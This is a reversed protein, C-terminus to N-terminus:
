GPAILGAMTAVIKRPEAPKSVVLCDPWEARVARTDLQGTYFFFPVGRQALARAVPVSVERELQLDLMAADIDQEALARLAETVNRCTWVAEAGADLLVSELEMLILFSDELVLIHATRLAGPADHDRVLGDM